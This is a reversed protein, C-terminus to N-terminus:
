FTFVNFYICVETILLSEILIKAKSKSSNDLCNLQYWSKTPINEKLTKVNFKIEGIKTDKQNKDVM